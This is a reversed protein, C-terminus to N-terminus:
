AGARANTAPPRETLRRIMESELTSLMTELKGLVEELKKAKPNADDSRWRSVTTWQVGKTLQCLEWLSLNIRQARTEIANIRDHFQM